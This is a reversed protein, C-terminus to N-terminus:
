NMPVGHRVAYAAAAARNEVGLKTFIRSVFTNVTIGKIGLRAGIERNTLGEAMLALVQRERPSLVSPPIGDLPCRPVALIEVLPGHTPAAAVAAHLAGVLAHWGTEGLLVRLVMSRRILGATVSLLTDEAGPITGCFMTALRVRGPLQDLLVLAQSALVSEVDANQDAQATHAATAAVLAARVHVVLSRAFDRLSAEPLGTQAALLARGFLEEAHSIERRVATCVPASWNHEASNTNQGGAPVAVLQLHYHHPMM